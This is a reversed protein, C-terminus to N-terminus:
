AFIGVVRRKSEPNGCNCISCVMNRTILTARPKTAYSM